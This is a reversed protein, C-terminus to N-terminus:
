NIHLIKELIELFFGADGSMIILSNIVLFLGTLTIILEKQWELIKLQTAAITILQLLGALVLCFLLLTKLELFLNSSSQGIFALWSTFLVLQRFFVKQNPWIKDEAFYFIDKDLIALYRLGSILIIGGLILYSLASHLYDLVLLVLLGYIANLVFIRLAAYRSIGNLQYFM